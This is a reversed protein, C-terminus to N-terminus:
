TAVLTVDIRQFSISMQVEHLDSMNEGTPSGSRGTIIRGDLMEIQVDISSNAQYLEPPISRDMIVTMDIRPNTSRQRVYGGSAAENTRDSLYLQPTENALTHVRNPFFRDPNNCDRISMILNKVGVLSECAM